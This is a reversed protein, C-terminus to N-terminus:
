RERYLTFYGTINPVYQAHEKNKVGFEISTEGDLPVVEHTLGDDLFTDGPFDEFVLVYERGKADEFYHAWADSGIRGHDKWRITAADLEHYNPLIVHEYFQEIVKRDM